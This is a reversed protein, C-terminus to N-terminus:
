ASVAAAARFLDDLEAETLGLGTGIANVLAGTRTFVNAYEWADQAEGGIAAVATNVDDLLGQARLVSRAQFNTVEAPVPALPAPGVTYSASASTAGVVITRGTIAEGEAPTPREDTLAMATLPGWIKPLPPEVSPVSVNLGRARLLANVAAPNWGSLEAIVDGNEIVVHTTM